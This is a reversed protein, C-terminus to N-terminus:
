SWRRCGLFRTTARRASVPGSPPAKLCASPADSDRDDSAATLNTLMDRWRANVEEELEPGRVDRLLFSKLLDVPRLRAGRDNMSEFIRYGSARDPTKIAVMVVQTLLWDVFSALNDSTVRENLLDRLQQGRSWLNAVSLSKGRVDFRRQDDPAERREPIDLRYRTPKGKKSSSPCRRTCNGSVRHAGREEAMRNLHLFILHLTM